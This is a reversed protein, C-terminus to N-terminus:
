SLQPVCVHASHLLFFVGAKCWLWGSLGLVLLVKRTWLGGEIWGDSLASSSLLPGARTLWYSTLRECVLHSSRFLLATQDWAPTLKSIPSSTSVSRTRTSQISKTAMWRSSLSHLVTEKGRPQLSSHLPNWLHSSFMLMRHSPAKNTQAFQYWSCAQWVREHCLVGTADPSLAARWM